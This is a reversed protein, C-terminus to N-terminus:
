RGTSSRSAARRPDGGRARRRAHGAAGLGVRHARDRRSPLRPPLVRPLEARPLEQRTESLTGMIGFDLAIYKGHNRPTSRSSSTARICTPTSSLRRPVGAHLLDRRRRARAAQPRRGRARLEDVRGIPIGAMREMVLVERSPTTGTCRPSWCCRRIGSTAACSRATPRRARSTSSTASRRRSNPSWRARGCGGATPGCGSSWRRGGHADARPGERDRRRHRAAAGQGRGAHRRAARRFAGARGVRERDAHPRVDRLGRRGPKGYVRELTAIVQEAPFPPVRDQLKALEDAIDPPLLDRRTSLMQGFKVFIPGLDELALRLRVARPARCTAGSCCARQRVPAAARLREHASCSHRRARLPARRARHPRPAPHADRSQVPRSIHASFRSCADVVFRRRPRRTLETRHAFSAHRGCRSRLSEDDIGVAFGHPGEGVFRRRPRRTRGTRHACRRTPRLAIALERRRDWPSATPAGRRRLSASVQATGSVGRCAREGGPWAARLRARPRGRTRTRARLSLDRAPRYGVDRAARSDADPAPIRSTRAVKVWSAEDLTQFYNRLNPAYTTGWPGQWGMSDGTLWDKEPVKGDLAMFGATHCDNCGAIQVLYRGRANADAAKNGAASAPPVVLGAACVAIAAMWTSLSAIRDIM